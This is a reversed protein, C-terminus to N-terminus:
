SARLECFIEYFHGVLSIEDGGVNAFDDVFDGVLAIGDVVELLHLNM